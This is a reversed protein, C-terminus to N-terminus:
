LPLLAVYDMNLGNVSANGSGRYEIRVEVEGYDIVNNVMGDVEIFGSNDPWVKYGLASYFGNSLDFIDLQENDTYFGSDGLLIIEGNIYISYIGSTRFNTKWVFRYTRPFVNPISFNIAYEGTYNKGFEASIITDNSGGTFLQKVPQFSNNGELKVKDIDWSYQGGLKKCLWEGEHINQAYLEDPVIFSNYDYVIGNSCSYRSTPDIEFDIVISDGKINALKPLDFELPDVDGWYVGKNLIYPILVENQWQGPIDKYSNMAGGLNGAMADLAANYNLSDPILLTASITRYEESIGFYEEEFRNIINIVSDYVTEGNENIGIPKSSFVDLLATDQLDIYSAIAPSNRKIYQYINPKPLAVHNIEYYRGDLLLPSPVSDSIVIGDFFYTNGFNEIRAYKESSTQLYYDSIVDQITFFRGIIHYKLTEFCGSTDSNLYDNVAENSPIFVTKINPSKLVTDLDYHEILRVFESFKDITKLTDWLKVNVTKDIDGYHQEWDKSCAGILVILLLLIYNLIRM